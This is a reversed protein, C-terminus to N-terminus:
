RRCSRSDRLDGLVAIFVRETVIDGGFVPVADIGVSEVKGDGVGTPSFRQPALEVALPEGLASYEGVIEVAEM